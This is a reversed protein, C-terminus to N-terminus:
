RRALFSLLLHLREDPDDLDAKTLETIRRVRYLLTNRHIHLIGATKAYHRECSIYVELTRCLEADNKKDYEDLIKVAPHEIWGGANDKLIKEAQFLVSEEFHVVSGSIGKEGAYALTGVALVYQEPLQMIDTFAASAACSSGTEKLIGELLEEFTGRYHGPGFFLIILYSDYILCQVRDSIRFARERLSYASIDEPTKVCYLFKEDTDGIGLVMLGAQVRGVNIEKGSLIDYFVASRNLTDQWSTHRELWAELMDGIEDLIDMMGATINKGAFILWGVHNEGNIINRVAQPYAFINERLMYAKRSMARIEPMKEIDKIYSLDMINNKTVSAIAPDDDFEGPVDSIYLPSYCPDTVALVGTLVTKARGLIDEMTLEPLNRYIDEAWVNYFDFADMIDNIVGNVDCTHLFIFDGQNMCMIGGSSANDVPRIYVNNATIQQTKSYMRVNQIMRGGTKINKEPSYGSMKDALIELSLKM